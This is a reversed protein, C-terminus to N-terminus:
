SKRWGATIKPHSSAEQCAPAVTSPGSCSRRSCATRARGGCAELLADALYHVNFCVECVSRAALLDFINETIPLYGVPGLPKAAKGTLPFLRRGKGAALVM